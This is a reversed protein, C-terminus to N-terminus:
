LKRWYKSIKSTKYVTIVKAPRITTNLFIRLLYTKNNSATFLGQYITLREEEVIQGPCDLVSQLVQLPIKRKILEEKAHKSLEFEM